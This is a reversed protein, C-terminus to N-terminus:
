IGRRIESRVKLVRNPAVSLEDIGLDIFYRTLSPDAALEGCIGVRCNNAHANKVTMEILRLVAPHHPDFFPDLEENQRDIALAYQSLDNTGISFFDAERALLDSIIAAAPTEIMIGEEIEGYPIHEAQLEKKVEEVAHHIARIEDVSIVMPYMVAVNGYEAARLIARLQPRFIDPRNLCIRIARYGMAPNEEKALHLYPLQKDAGIDLTRIVVKKGNLKEAVARYAQFQEEESPLANSELFLFESRFLGIGGADNSLALEADRVSGINAFLDIKKGDSTIDEKGILAALKKSHERDEERKRRFEATKGDDPEIILEAENEAEACQLIAKKGDERGDLTIGTVAPIGMTRALISSHSNDSGFSTVIGSLKATDFQVTESPTLERAALITHESLPANNEPVGSLIRLLRMTIDEVDSSRAQLYANGEMADLKEAIEMGTQQVAAMANMQQKRIRNQVGDLFLADKLMMAHAEFIAAQAQGLKQLTQEYLKRVDTEAQDRADLFRKIEGEAEEPAISSAPIHIENRGFLRITGEAFGDAIKRGQLIKM